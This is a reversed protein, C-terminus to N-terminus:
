HAVKHLYLYTIPVQTSDDARVARARTGAPAFGSGAPAVARLAYMRQRLGGFLFQGARDSVAVAISDFTPPAFISASSDPSRVIAFLTVVARPIPAIQPPTVTSDIGIVLGRIMARGATDPPPPPPGSDPPTTDSVIAAAFAGSLDRARDPSPSGSGLSDACAAVTLTVLFCGLAILPSGRVCM